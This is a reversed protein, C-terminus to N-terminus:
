TQNDALLVKYYVTTGNAINKVDADVYVLGMAKLFSLRFATFGYDKLGPHAQIFKWLERDSSIKKTKKLGAIVDDGAIASFAKFSAVRGIDAIQAFNDRNATSRSILLHKGAMTLASDAPLLLVAGGPSPYITLENAKQAKLGQLMGCFFITLFIKFRTEM